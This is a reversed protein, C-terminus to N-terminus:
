VYRGTPIDLGLQGGARVRTVNSGNAFRGVAIVSTYRCTSMQVNSDEQDLAPYPTSSIGQVPIVRRAGIFKPSECYNNFGHCIMSSGRSSRM